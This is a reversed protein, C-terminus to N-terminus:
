SPSLLLSPWKQTNMYRSKRLKFVAEVGVDYDHEDEAVVRTDSKGHFKWVEYGSMFGNKCLHIVITTKDEL